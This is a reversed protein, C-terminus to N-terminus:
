STQFNKTQSIQYGNVWFKVIIRIFDAYIHILWFGALLNIMTHCYMKDFNWQDPIDELKFWLDQVDLFVWACGVLSMAYFLAVDLGDYDLIFCIFPIIMLVFALLVCIKKYKSFDKKIFVAAWVALTFLVFAIALFLGTEEWGQSYFCITTRCGMTIALLVSINMKGNNGLLPGLRFYAYCLFMPLIFLFLSFLSGSPKEPTSEPSFFWRSFQPIYAFLLAMAIGLTILGLVNFYLRFIIGRKEQKTIVFENNGM